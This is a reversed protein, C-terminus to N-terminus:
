KLFSGIQDFVYRVYPRGSGVSGSHEPVSRFRILLVSNRVEQQTSLAELRQNANRKAVEGVDKWSRGVAQYRAEMLEDFAAVDM